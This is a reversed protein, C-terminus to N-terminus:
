HIRERREARASLMSLIVDCGFFLALAVVFIMFGSVDHVWGTAAPSGYHYAIVCLTFIRFINTVIAIPPALILLAVRAWPRNKSLYSMLAGLAVLAILSRLGGCVDGVLLRDTPFLIFSGDQIIPLYFLQALQVAWDTAFLKLNLSISATLSPPIPIMFFLFCLPFWAARFHAAGFFLLTVATLMPLLSLQTFVHFSLLDGVLVLLLAVGLAAYGLGPAPVISVGQHRARNRWLLFLSIFPILYGHSYYSDTMSWINEMELIPHYYLAILLAAAAALLVPHAGARDRTGLGGNNIENVAM